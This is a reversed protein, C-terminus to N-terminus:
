RRAIRGSLCHLSPSFTGALYKVRPKERVSVQMRLLPVAVKELEIYHRLVQKEGRLVVICNRKNSGFEYVGDELM